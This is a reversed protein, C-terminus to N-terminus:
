MSEPQSVGLLKLCVSMTHRVLMTTFLRMKSTQVDGSDVIRNNAYYNHFKHALEWSYYALIHTQRGHGVTRLVGHLSVIKKLVERESDGIFELVSFDVKGEKLAPIYNALESEQAAKNLLSLTRVYAYQIYFVPNEDSKKLATSIDFELHAEAKRNLYFFRAVDKGVADIVEQLETFTGARKSMKVLQDDKKLSVLQYLIVELDEGSYGMADMTAKLRKVYGHHDQGLVDILRDFGRDFKNKHYAIDSAIYTHEGSSKRVVRDKDDGFETARFWLAGDEEYVLNKKQLYDLAADASGDEHLSKESFWEDYIIGYGELTKKIINLLSDKAYTSFFKTDKQDLDQGHEAVCREAIEVLYEGVYGGEPLAVDDGLVEYCRARLSEGLLKIQNGADNIYFERHVSHGLFELVNSLVDGIIGNRGAGLHVPGTPNMSIFEVNYNLAPEGDHLRYFSDGQEWLAQGVKQWSKKTFTLNLFGPGAIEVCALLENYTSLAEQIQQAIDRPSKKLQKALLMAVNTSMDGFSNNKDVNLSVDFGSVASLDIDYLKKVVAHLSSKIQLIINM